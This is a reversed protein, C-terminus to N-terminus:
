RSSVEQTRAVGQALVWSRVFRGTIDVRSPQVHSATDWRSHYTPDERWQLWAAPIGAHEFAEHDSWGTRGFDKLFTMRVGTMSAWARLGDAASQPGKLMTRVHFKSGYGVMDISIAAEIRDKEASSLTRVYHQSGFHHDDPTAGSIEEAGFAIFRVTYAPDAQALLRALELTVAVGSANDNAGPSPYKSDIHGGLVIVPAGPLGAREAIVNRSTRGGPVSVNQTTVAYGWERLRAAFYDSAAREAPSGAVRPGYGAIARVHAMARGIEFPPALLAQSAAVRVGFPVAREGGVASLTGVEARRRWLEIETAPHLSGRPTLLLVSGRRAQLVGACLADPFREGETICPRSWDMGLGGAWEAMALSTAYRDRGAVREVADPRHVVWWIQGMSRRSVASEGGVVVASRVGVRRVLVATSMALGSPPVLLIPRGTRAAVPSCSVADAFTRSSVFFAGGDWAAGMAAVTASAVAEATRISDSGSIRTVVGGPALAAAVQSAVASSLAREGGLVYASTAGLRDIEAAVSPPLGTPASLLLPGGVAGALASGGLADAWGAGTAIVVAPGGTPFAVESVAASTAYRDGGAIVEVALASHPTVQTSAATAAERPTALSPASAVPLLAIALVASLWLPRARRANPRDGRRM